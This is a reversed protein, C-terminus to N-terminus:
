QYMPELLGFPLCIQESIRRGSASGMLLVYKVILNEVITPTLGTEEINKPEAPRFSDEALISQLLTGTPSTQTVATSM